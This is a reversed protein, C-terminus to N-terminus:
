HFRNPSISSLMTIVAERYRQDTVSVISLRLSVRALMTRAAAVNSWSPPGAATVV